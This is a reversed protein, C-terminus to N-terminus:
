ILNLTQNLPRVKGTQISEFQLYTRRMHLEVNSRTRLRKLSKGRAGHFERNKTVRLRHLPKLHRKLPWGIVCCIVLSTKSEINRFSIRSVMRALNRRDEAVGIKGQIESVLSENDLPLLIYPNFFKQTNFSKRM